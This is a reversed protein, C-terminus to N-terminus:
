QNVTFEIPTSETSNGALDYAKVVLSHKGPLAAWPYSFPLQTTEGIMRNNIYWEVRAIGVADEAKAQLTLENNQNFTFEQGATPYPVSLRPATNDVTLQIIATELEQDDNTVMLRMAYLGDKGTQWTGLTGDNRVAKSGDAIQLWTLPNLGEGVQLQYNSFGDGAATGKVDLTGQVYSFITPSSINANETHPPNQIVDYATPPLPIGATVAWEQAEPPVVLYTQEEILELPTFVTALQGTERNVQYSQHLNDYGVPESGNIFIESAISPCDATPLLGSPNCVDMTTIGAPRPWDEAAQQRSVDQMLAYWIGASAKPDLRTPTEQSDPWGLWTVILHSRTYGVTWVQQNNDAQGLKAGTPRGLQLPNPYGLSAQRATEDNLVHHVLYALQDSLISQMEPAAAQLLIRGNNDEVKLVLVPEVEDRSSRQGVQNGLHAFTSYAQAIDLLSANGGAFLLSGSETYNEIDDLGFPAALRWVNAPGIQSLLQSLAMLHDNALATRMRQPGHYEGDPNHMTALISDEGPPVDWVLSAPGEGRAFSTVAVFPSLLSGPQHTSVNVPTGTSDVDGLMALVEGTDLDLLLANASLDGSLQPADPPLTPLLRATDCTSIQDSQGTLRLLQTRATCTMELQQNYDLTTIIRLGGREVRQQGLQGALQNLVLDTFAAAFHNPAKPADSFELEEMSASEFEENGIWGQDVLQQLAQQQNEIAAAPADLPNLAPTDPLAALLAAEALSLDHASKDLYLQAASEAGYAMHGYYASNLYWELVQARGFRQVLQTALLRMRLSRRLGPPENELMLDHVLQEALTQPQPNTLNRWQFGAHQWFRPDNLSITTQIFIPSFSDDQQPDIGLSTHPIGPNELTLLLTEGSRDYIQTPQQLLGNQRDLLEPLVNLSPLDATLQAYSVGGWILAAALLLGAIAGLGLALRSFRKEASTRRASAQRRRRQILLNLDLLRM